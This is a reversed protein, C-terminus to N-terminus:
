AGPPSGPNLPCARLDDCDIGDLFAASFYTTSLLDSIASNSGGFSKDTFARRIAGRDGALFRDFWVRTLEANVRLRDEPTTEGVRGETQSWDSHQSGALTVQMVPVGAGRWKRFAAKKSEPGGDPDTAGRKDSAQGMSPVRPEVERPWGTRAGFAVGGGASGEDGAADSALNDWAVVAGVREDVSQLYSVARAGQSHGAAGVPGDDVRGHVAPHDSRLFDIGSQAAEVKSDVGQTPLVSGCLRPYGDDDIPRSLMQANCTPDGVTDSEGQGEPDITLVVYGHGALYRGAWAYYERRGNDGGPLIVIAPAPRDTAPLFLTACLKAKSTRAAFAVPVATSEGQWEFAPPNKEGLVPLASPPCPDTAEEARVPVVSLAAVASAVALTTAIAGKPGTSRVENPSWARAARVLLSRGLTAATPADRCNGM